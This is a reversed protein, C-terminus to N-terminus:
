FWHIYKHYGARKMLVQGDLIVKIGQNRWNMSQIAYISSIPFPEEQQHILKEIDNLL